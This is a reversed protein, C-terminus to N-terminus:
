ASLTCRLQDTQPVCVCVISFKLCVLKESVTESKKEVNHAQNLEGHSMEKFVPNELNRKLTNKIKMKQKKQRGMRNLNTEATDSHTLDVRQVFWRM